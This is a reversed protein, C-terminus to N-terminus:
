NTLSKLSRHMLLCKQQLLIPLEEDRKALEYREQGNVKKKLEPTTTPPPTVTVPTSEKKSDPNDNIIFSATNPVLPKDGAPNPYAALLADYHSM